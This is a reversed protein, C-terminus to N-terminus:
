HSGLPGRQPSANKSDLEGGLLLTAGLILDPRKWPVFHNLGSIRVVRIVSERSLHNVLFDQNSPPVLDDQEGQILVSKARIGKWEPLMATLEKKLNLIEENCVRLESPILNRILWGNAPYQIWKTEELEPDVSSAVFVLGAVLDPRDMAARAIVPGGFSHGVLIAAQGSHNFQLVELIEQAQAQLSTETVGRGSGGYGPRDIAIVHFSKQLQADMLFHAWGEWSGPSGHVFVVPRKSPDGSWAYQMQRTPTQYVQFHSSYERKFRDIDPRIVSTPNACASLAMLVLLLGIAKKV